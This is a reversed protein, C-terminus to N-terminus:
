VEGEGGYPRSLIIDWLSVRIMYVRLVVTYLIPQYLSVQATKLYLVVM